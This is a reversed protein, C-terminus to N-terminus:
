GLIDERLEGNKQSVVLLSRPTTNAGVNAIDDVACRRKEAEMCFSYIVLNSVSTPLSPHLSAHMVKESEKSQKKAKKKKKPSVSSWRFDSEVDYM